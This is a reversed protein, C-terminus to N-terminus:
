PHSNDKEGVDPGNSKLATSLKNFQALERQQDAPQNLKQYVQALFYHSGPDAPDLTATLLLTEKARQLDGLGIYCRGLLLHTEADKPQGAASKKLYPFAKDYQKERLALEGLSLNTAPDDPSEELALLFEKEASDYQHLRRYAVGLPYHVGLADPQKRLAAQYEAVSAEYHGEQGYLQGMFAHIQFSDPDLKRLRDIAQFSAQIHLRALEYLVNPKDPNQAAVQNLEDIAEDPRNQAELVLALYYRTAPHPKATKLEQNFSAGAANFDHLGYYSLGLFFNVEPYAPHERLVEKFHVISDHFKLETQEDIGLRKLAEPNHPETALVKKYCGEAASFNQEGEYVQAQQFLDPEARQQAWACTAIGVTLAALVLVAASRWRPSAFDRWPTPLRMRTRTDFRSNFM